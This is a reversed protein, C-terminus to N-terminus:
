SFNLISILHSSVYGKDPGASNLDILRESPVAGNFM